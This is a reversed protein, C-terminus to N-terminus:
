WDYEGSAWYIIDRFDIKASKTLEQVRKLKGNALKLIALRTNSLNHESEAMVHSLRISNLEGLVAAIL